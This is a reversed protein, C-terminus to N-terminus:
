KALFGGTRKNTIEERQVSHVSMDANLVNAKQNHRTGIKFLYNNSAYTTDDTKNPLFWPDPYTNAAAHENAVGDGIAGFDSYTVFKKM